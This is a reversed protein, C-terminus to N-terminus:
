RDSFLSTFMGRFHLNHLIRSSPLSPPIPSRPPLNVLNSGYFRPYRWQFSSLHNLTILTRTNFRQHLLLLSLSYISHHLWNPSLLDYRTPFLPFAVLIPQKLITSALAITTLAMYSKSFLIQSELKSFFVVFISCLTKSADTSALLDM